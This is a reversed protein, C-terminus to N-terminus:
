DTTVPAGIDTLCWAHVESTACVEWDATDRTEWGAHRQGPQRTLYASPVGIPFDAVCCTPFGASRSQRYKITLVSTTFFESIIRADHSLHLM